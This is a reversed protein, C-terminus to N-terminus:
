QGDQRAAVDCIRDNVMWDNRDLRQSAIVLLYNLFLSFRMAEEDGAEWKWEGEHSLGFSSSFATGNVEMVSFFISYFKVLTVYLM